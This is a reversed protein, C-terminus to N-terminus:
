LLTKVEYIGLHTKPIGLPEQAVSQSGHSLAVSIFNLTYILKNGKPDLATGLWKLWTQSKEVGRVTARWVGRGM